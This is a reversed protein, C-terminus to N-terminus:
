GLFILIFLAAISFGVVLGIIYDHTRTVLTDNSIATSISNDQVLPNMFEDFEITAASYTNNFMFENSVPSTNGTQDLTKLETNM